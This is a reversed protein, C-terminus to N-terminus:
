RLVRVSESVSYSKGSVGDDDSSALAKLKLDIVILSSANVGRPSM